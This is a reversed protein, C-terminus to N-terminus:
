AGVDIPTPKTTVQTVMAKVTYWGAPEKRVGSTVELDAYWREDETVVCVYPVGAGESAEFARVDDFVSTGPTVPAATSDVAGTQAAVLLTTEFAVGPKELPTFAVQYDRGQFRRYTHTSQFDYERKGDVADDYWVSLSPAANNAFIYGCCTMFPVTTLTPTWDSVSMDTRRVRMRYSVTVNRLSEYDDLSEVSETTINAIRQWGTVDDSREVEYRLFDAGLATANWEFVVYSICDTLDSVAVATGTPAAPQTAITIAADLEAYRVGDIWAADTAGDFTADDADAPPGGSSGILQPSLVQVQWGTGATATSTCRIQRQTAGAIAGGCRGEVVQWADRPEDLDDETITLTTGVHVGAADTLAVVMDGDTTTGELRVLLRVWTYDDGGVTTIEQWVSTNSNVKTWDNDIGLAPVVDGGVHVYPQSDTSIAGSNKILCMGFLKTQEDQTYGVAHLTDPSITADAPLVHTVDPVTRSDLYRVSITGKGWRRRVLVLYTTGNVKPWATLSTPGYVTVDNWGIALSSALDHPVNGVAVRPDTADDTVEVELWTQLIMALDNASGTPAITWGASYDGGDLENVHSPLWGSFQYPNAYWDYRVYHGGARQGSKTYTTGNARVGNNLMFPTVQIGPSSYGIMTYQQVYAALSVRVIRKNAYAGSVGSFQFAAECGLGYIPFMGEDNDLPMNNNPWLGKGPYLATPYSDVGQHITLADPATGSPAFTGFAFADNNLTTVDPVHAAVVRDVSGLDSADYVEVDWGCGMDDDVNQLSSVYMQISDITETAHSDVLMAAVISGGSLGLSAEIYPFWQCGLTDPTGPNFTM